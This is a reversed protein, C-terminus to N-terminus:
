GTIFIVSVHGFVPAPIWLVQLVLARVCLAAQATAVVHPVPKVCLVVHCIFDLQSQATPRSDQKLSLVEINTITLDKCRTSYKDLAYLYSKRQTFDYTFKM